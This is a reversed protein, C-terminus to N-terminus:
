TDLVRILELCYSFKSSPLSKTIMDAANDETSIKEVLVSRRAGTERIFHVKIDIHKTREHFVQNKSLQLASQNDCFVTIAKQELKLERVLGSLWLAEKVAKILAM